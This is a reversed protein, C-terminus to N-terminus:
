GQSPSKPASKAPQGPKFSIDKSTVGMGADAAIQSVRVFKDLGAQGLIYGVAVFGDMLTIVLPLCQFMWSASERCYIISFVLIPKMLLMYLLFSVFKKSQLPSNPEAM